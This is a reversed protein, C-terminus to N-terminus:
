RRRRRRPRGRPGRADDRRPGARAPCARGRGDDELGRGSRSRSAGRAVRDPRRLPRGCGLRHRLLPSGAAAVVRRHRRAPRPRRLGPVRRLRQDGLAAANGAAARRAKRVSPLARGVIGRDGPPIVAGALEEYLPRRVALLQEVDEASTALPRNTHAIRRWAEGADVQLWIVTHRRLADRVRASLVSGGGLAIAGGDAEELLAGVIEAERARFAEEGDREFAAAIPMGLEREM